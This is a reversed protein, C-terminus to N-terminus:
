RSRQASGPHHRPPDEAPGAATATVALAATLRQHLDTYVAVQGEVPLEPLRALADDVGQLQAAVSAPDATTSPASGGATAGTPPGWDQDYALM